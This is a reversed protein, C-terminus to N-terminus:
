QGEAAALLRIETRNQKGLLVTSKEESLANLRVILHTLKLSKRLKIYIKAHQYQSNSTQEKLTQM